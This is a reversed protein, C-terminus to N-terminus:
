KRVPWPSGDASRSSELRESAMLWCFATTLVREKDDASSIGGSADASIRTAGFDSRSSRSAATMPAHSRFPPLISTRSSGLLAVGRKCANSAFEPMIGRSSRTSRNIWSGKAVPIRRSTVAWTKGFASTVRRRSPMFMRKGPAVCDSPNSWGRAWCSFIRM